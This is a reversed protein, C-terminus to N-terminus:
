SRAQPFHSPLSTTQVHRLGTHGSGGAGRLCLFGTSHCSCVRTTPMSRPVVLESTAKMSPVGRDNDGALVAVAEDGGDDGEVFLAGITENDAFTARL